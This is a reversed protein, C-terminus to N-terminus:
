KLLNVAMGTVEYSWYWQHGIVKVMIKSVAIEYSSFLLAFSPIAILLLILSPIVTWIIEVLIGSNFKLWDARATNEQLRLYRRGDRVRRRILVAFPFEYYEKDWAQWAYFKVKNQDMVNYWFKRLISALIYLVVFLIISLFFLIHDHLDAIGYMIPTIPDQFSMRYM